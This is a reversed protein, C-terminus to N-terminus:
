RNVKYIVDYEFERPEEWLSELKNKLGEDLYFDKKNIGEKISKNGTIYKFFVAAQARFGEVKAKELDSMLAVSEIKEKFRVNKAGSIIIQKIKFSM